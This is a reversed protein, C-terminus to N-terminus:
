RGVEVSGSFAFNSIGGIPIAKRNPHKYSRLRSKFNRAYECDTNAPKSTANRLIHRNSIVSGIAPWGFKGVDGGPLEMKGSRGM